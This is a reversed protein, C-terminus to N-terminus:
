QRIRGASPYAATQEAYVDSGMRILADITRMVKVIAFNDQIYPRGAMADNIRISRSMKLFQRIREKSGPPKAM